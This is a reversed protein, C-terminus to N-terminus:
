LGIPIKAQGAEPSVASPAIIQAIMLAILGPVDELKALPVEVLWMPPGNPAIQLRDLCFSSASSPYFLVVADADYARAYAMLQYVDAQAVGRRLDRDIPDLRKWKTDVVIRLDARDLVIDPQMRFLPTGHRTLAHSLPGQIRVAWGEPSLRRRFMRAAWAEFLDNMRFLIAQGALVGGTTSQHVSRLFLRAQAHLVRFRANTRDLHVHPLPGRLDSVNEFHLLTGRLARRSAAVRTRGVLLRASAALIRNLPTDASLEDFRCALLDARGALRAFQQESRLRGRLAPLDNEQPLYSRALGPRVAALLRRAFLGILIELLDRDQHELSASEEASLPFGECDAIMRILNRRVTPDEQEGIKPLIELSVDGAAIIGVTQGARLHYRGDRLVEDEGSRLDVAATRAVTLLADAEARTVEDQGMGIPLVGWERVVLRKM